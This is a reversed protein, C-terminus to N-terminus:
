SAWEAAEESEPPDASGPAADAAQGWDDEWGHKNLWTSAHPVGIGSAWAKSKVQKALAVAMTTALEDGPALKDWARIAAQRNGANRDPPVHSRYFAWFKEFRQPLFDAQAKYDQKRRKGKGPAGAGEPPKPPINTNLIDISLETPNESSPKETSPNDTTPNESSPLATVPQEYIIYENVSFKGGADTTQRRQIYGAEELENVASRIADKSEKNIQALGALTYDWGEPLSLMQSLLGKAKLSLSRNRLHHNSMVTYDKTREVRFTAM